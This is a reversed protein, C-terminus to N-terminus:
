LLRPLITFLDTAAVNAAARSRAPFNRKGVDESCRGSCLLFQGLVLFTYHLPAKGINGVGGQDNDEASFKMDQVLKNRQASCFHSVIAMKMNAKCDEFDNTRIHLQTVSEFMTANHFSHM